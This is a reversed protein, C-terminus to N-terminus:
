RGRPVSGPLILVHFSVGGDPDLSITISELHSAAPVSAYWENVQQDIQKDM